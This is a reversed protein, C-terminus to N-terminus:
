SQSKMVLISRRLEGVARTILLAENGRVTYPKLTKREGALADQKHILRAGVRRQKDNCRVTLRFGFGRVHDQKQLILRFNLHIPTTVRVREVRETV